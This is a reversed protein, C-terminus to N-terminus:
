DDADDFAALYLEAEVQDLSFQGAEPEAVYACTGDSNLIWFRIPWPAYSQEFHSTEPEDMALQMMPSSALEPAVQEMFPIFQSNMVARRDETTKPQREVCPLSNLSNGVPWEDEPHAEDIYVIAWNCLEQCTTRWLEVM